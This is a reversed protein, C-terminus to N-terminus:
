VIGICSGVEWMTAYVTGSTAKSNSFGLPCWCSTVNLIRWTRSGTVTFTVLAVVRVSKGEPNVSLTGLEQKNTGGVGGVVNRGRGCLGM